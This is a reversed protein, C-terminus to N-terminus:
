RAPVREDHLAHQIAASCTHVPPKHEPLAGAELRVLQFLPTDSSVTRGLLVRSLPGYDLDDYAIVVHLLREARQFLFHLPFASEALHLAARVVLLGRLLARTLLGLRDAAGTFQGALASLAFAQQRALGASGAALGTRQRILSQM